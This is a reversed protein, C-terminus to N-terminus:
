VSTLTWTLAPASALEVQVGLLLQTVLGPWVVGAEVGLGEPASTLAPSFGQGAGEMGAWLGPGFEM